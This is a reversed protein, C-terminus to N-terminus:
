PLARTKWLAGPCPAAALHGMRRMEVEDTSAPDAAAKACIGCLARARGGYGQRQANQSISIASVQLTEWKPKAAGAASGSGHRLTPVKSNFLFGDINFQLPNAQTLDRM